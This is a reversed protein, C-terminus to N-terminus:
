VGAKDAVVAVVPLQIRPVATAEQQEVLAVLAV